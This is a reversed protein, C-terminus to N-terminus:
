GFLHPFLVTAAFALGSGILFVTVGIGAVNGLWGNRYQGMLEADNAIVILFLLAPPMALTAVVNVLIVIEELPAGPILTLGGAACASGLLVAYFRWGERLPTNLSHATGSVEGFAYASSTSIAIAAVLGAEFIGIAFLAAGLPGILPRLAEAFQAAQFNATSIGHAFLPATAVIAAIGFVAAFVTGILTDTRAGALERPTLGKDAVAGQQFFLMWPTVTAGIDAIMLTITDPKLGGPLPSWTLMAHGIAGFDPHALLAVPVFIANGLALGMVIREWTRYRSTSIAFGIVVISGGVALVPPVGFYGLGARIGIFETVLTLFNGATLDLMAFGGWFRGFRAFIMDAHGRGTAAGIRAVMEQVVFAIAFTFVVFPLFFGIGFQSGTAAYSLMSPADNEGLFTVVGPGILLLLLRAGFWRSPFRRARNLAQRDRARDYDEHSPDGPHDPVRVTM